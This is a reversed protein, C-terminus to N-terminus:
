RVGFGRTETDWFLTDRSPDAKLKDINTKNLKLKPVQLGRTPTAYSKRALKGRSVSVVM